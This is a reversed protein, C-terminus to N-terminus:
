SIGYKEIIRYADGNSLERTNYQCYAIWHQWKEVLSTDEYQPTEIKTLDKGCLMDAIGPASTFAPIGYGVAETAAISNYTVVAFINDQDFQNYISGDGVRDRRLGKDRVIIERDTHQKLTNMTDDLWQQRSIGYFKCPKESPTVVLIPGGDKKWGPFGIYELGPTNVAYEIWRDNPVEKFNSHQMGNKVVRHYLKRKQRNGIYGTDIYYYDRGTSECLRVAKRSAMSRIAVPIDLPYKETDNLLKYNDIYQANTGLYWCKVIGDTPDLALQPPIPVGRDSEKIAAM